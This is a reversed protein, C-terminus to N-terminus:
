KKHKEWPGSCLFNFLDSGSCYEFVVFQIRGIVSGLSLANSIVIVIASYKVYAYMFVRYVSLCVSVFVCIIM